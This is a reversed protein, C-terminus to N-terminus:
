FDLRETLAPQPCPDQRTLDQCPSEAWRGGVTQGFLAMVVQGGREPKAMKRWHVEPLKRKQVISRIYSRSDMRIHIKQKGHTNTYKAILAYKYRKSDM